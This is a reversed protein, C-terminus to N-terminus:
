SAAEALIGEGACCLFGGKGGLLPFLFQPDNTDLLEVKLGHGPLFCDELHVQKLMIEKCEAIYVIAFGKRNYVASM